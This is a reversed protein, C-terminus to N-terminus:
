LRNFENNDLSEVQGEYSTTYVKFKLLLANPATIVKIQNLRDWILWKLRCVITMGHM